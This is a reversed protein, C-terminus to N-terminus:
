EWVGRQRMGLRRQTANGSEETDCEWDGRHRMGLRRQTANGTQTLRKRHQIGPFCSVITVFSTLVVAVEELMGTVYM